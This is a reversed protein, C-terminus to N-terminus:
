HCRNVERLPGRLCGMLTFCVQDVSAFGETDTWNKDRIWREISKCVGKDRKDADFCCHKNHGLHLSVVPFGIKTVPNVFSDAPSYFNTGYIYFFLQYDDRWDLVRKTILTQVGKMVVPRDTFSGSLKVPEDSKLKGNCGDDAPCKLTQEANKIQNNLTLYFENIRPPYKRSEIHEASVQAKCSMGQGITAREFEEIGDYYDGGKAETIVLVLIKSSIWIGQFM